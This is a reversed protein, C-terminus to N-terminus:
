ARSSKASANACCWTPSRYRWTNRNMRVCNVFYHLGTFLVFVEGDLVDPDNTDDVKSTDSNSAELCYKNSNAGAFTIVIILYVDFFHRSRLKSGFSSSFNLFDTSFYAIEPLNPEIKEKFYEMAM